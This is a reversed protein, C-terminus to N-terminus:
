QPCLEICCKLMMMLLHLLFYLEVLCFVCCLLLSCSSVVFLLKLCVEVVVSRSCVKRNKTGLFPPGTYWSLCTSFFVTVKFVLDYHQNYLHLEITLFHIVKERYCFFIQSAFRVFTKVTSLSCCHAFPLGPM